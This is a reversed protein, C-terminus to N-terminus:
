EWTTYRTAWESKPYRSHLTDFLQHNLDKTADTRCANRVVRMAFGLVDSNRADTPHAKVWDLAQQAFYDSAGPIKQLTAIERDAATRDAPALFPPDPLFPPLGSYPDGEQTPVPPGPTAERPIIFQSFLHPPQKTNNGPGQWSTADCWWNDRFDDYAAFDREGGVRVTPETSTFRMLALLGLVHRDDSTKAAAYQDLWTKFAPQCQALYPALSRATAADDLLLARTWAMHALQFRLNNPLAPSLAAQSLLNLPMRQNFILTVSADFHPTKPAYVNTGCLEVAPNIPYDPAPSSNEFGDVNTYSAPLRTSSKLFTDLTPATAAQLDLFLNTTSRSQTREIASLLPAVEAYTAPSPRDQSATLRLRQYTVSPYAPSTPPIAKAAAILENVGDDGSRAITLAAVLWQLGHTERWAALADQLRQTDTSSRQYPLNLGISEITGNGEGYMMDMWRLLPAQPKVTATHQKDLVGPVTSQPLSTYAFGLDIVAQEYDTNSQGPKAPATLRRALDQAQAQPELRLMVYDLLHQSQPHIAILTPDRLIGQLQDRAQSLDAHIDDNSAAEAKQRAEPSLNDAIPHPTLASKRILVRAVVYRALPALPSAKDAAVARFSALAADFDLTYFQAAAIQYAREQRLWLPANAPAPAPKHSPPPPPPKPYQFQSSSGDSCNSFVAEQGAVWDQVSATDSTGYKSRLENLRAAARAFADDLCNTFSDYNEGPVKREVGAIAGALSSWAVEGQGSQSSDDAPSQEGPKVYGEPDYYRDVKEAAKQEAPTLGRGSLTNYAVVMNRIRYTRGIVGLRGHAYASYPQDPGYRQTFVASSGEHSCGLGPHAMVAVLMMALLIRRLRKM